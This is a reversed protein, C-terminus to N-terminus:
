AQVGFQGGAKVRDDAEVLAKLVAEQRRKHAAAQDESIKAWHERAADVSGYVEVLRQETNAVLAASFRDPADLVDIQGRLRAIAQQNRFWSKKYRGRNKRQDTAHARAEARRLQGASQTKIRGMGVLYAQRAKARHDVKSKEAGDDFAGDADHTHNAGILRDLINM